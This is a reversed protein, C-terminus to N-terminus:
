GVVFVSFQQGFQQRLDVLAYQHARQLDRRHYRASDGFEGVSPKIRAGVRFAFVVDRDQSVVVIQLRFVLCLEIVRVRTGVVTLHQIEAGLALIQNHFAFHFPAAVFVDALVIIARQLTFPSLTIELTAPSYWQSCVGLHM